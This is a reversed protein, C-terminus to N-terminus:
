AKVSTWQGRKNREQIKTGHVINGVNRLYISGGYELDFLTPNTFKWVYIYTQTWCVWSPITSPQYVTQAMPATSLSINDFVAKRRSVSSWLSAVPSGLRSDMWRTYAHPSLNEFCKTFTILAENRLWRLYSEHGVQHSRDKGINQPRIVDRWPTMINIYADYLSPPNIILARWCRSSLPNNWTSGSCEGLCTSSKATRRLPHDEWVDPRRISLIQALAL